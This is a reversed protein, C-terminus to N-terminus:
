ACTPTRGNLASIAQEYIDGEAFATALCSAQAYHKFLKLNNQQKFLLEAQVCWAVGVIAILFRLQKIRFYREIM